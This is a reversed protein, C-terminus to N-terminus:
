PAESGKAINCRLRVLQQRNEDRDVSDQLSAFHMTPAASYTLVSTPEQIHFDAMVVMVNRKQGNNQIQSLEIQRSAFSSTDRLRRVHVLLKRDSLAPGYFSGLASYLHYAPVTTKYAATIAVGITCGGYAIKANTGMINPPVCSEFQDTDIQQVDLLETISAPFSSM